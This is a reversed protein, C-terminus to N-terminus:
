ISGEYVRNVTVSGNIRWYYGNPVHFFNNWFLGGQTANAINTWTSNDPSTQIKISGAGNTFCQVLITKGTTNQYSTSHTRSGTVDSFTLAVSASAWSPFGSALTLVTGDAGIPLRALTDAATAYLVDGPVLSLGSLSTLTADADQKGAVQTQLAAILRGAYRNIMARIVGQDIM